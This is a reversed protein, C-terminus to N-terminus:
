SVHMRRVRVKPGGFAVPLPMQENKGCGGFISSQLKVKSSLGDIDKLTQFVTGSVVSVRVPEALKGNRIMYARDPAITFTSLGSGHRMSKIYVGNKIKALLSSFSTKGAGIYTNTMRVIPEFQANIARANGTPKENLESATQLSHLRGTLIGKKVLFTKEAPTGEDDFPCYGTKQRIAGNDVISLITSGVRKGLKWEAVMKKDGLMFDAESKHGFSEHAFVGATEESLVVPYYGPKVTPAALFMKAEALDKKADEGIGNLKQFDPETRTYSSAFLRDGEKLTFFFMIGFMTNDYSVRSGKSTIITKVVDWDAYVSILDVLTKEKKYAPFLSEILKKKVIIKYSRANRTRYRLLTQHTPKPISFSKFDGTTKQSLAVLRDLEAEVKTLDTHSAYFWRGNNFVRIFAGKDSLEIGNQIEFNKYSLLTRYRDEIRVDAYYCNLQQLKKALNDVFAKPLQSLKNTVASM